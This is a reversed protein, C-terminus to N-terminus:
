PCTGGHRLQSMPVVKEVLGHREKELDAQFKGERAKIFEEVKVEDRM